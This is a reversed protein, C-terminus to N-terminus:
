GKHEAKLGYLSTHSVRSKTENAVTGLFEDLAIPQNAEQVEIDKRIRPM